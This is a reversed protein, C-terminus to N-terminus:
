TRIKSIRYHSGHRNKFWGFKLIARSPPRPGTGTATGPDPPLKCHLPGTHPQLQWSALLGLSDTPPVCHASRQTPNPSPLRSSIITNIGSSTLLPRQVTHAWTVMSLLLYFPSTLNFTRVLERYNIQYLCAMQRFIQRWAQLYGGPRKLKLFSFINYIIFILKFNPKFWFVQYFLTNISHQLYELVDKWISILYVTVSNHAKRIEM